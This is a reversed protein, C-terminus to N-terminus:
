FAIWLYLSHCVFIHFLKLSSNCQLSSTWFVLTRPTPPPAPFTKYTQFVSVKSTNTIITFLCIFTRLALIQFYSWKLSEQLRSGLYRQIPQCLSHPEMLSRTGCAFLAQSSLIAIVTLPLYLFPIAWPSDPASVNKFDHRPIHIENSTTKTLM